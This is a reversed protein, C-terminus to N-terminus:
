ILFLFIGLPHKSKSVRKNIIPFYGPVFARAADQVFSLAKDHSRDNLDDFFIGGSYVCASSFFLCLMSILFM